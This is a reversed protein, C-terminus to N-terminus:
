SPQVNRVWQRVAGELETRHIGYKELVQLAKCLTEGGRHTQAIGVLIDQTDTSSSGREVAARIALELARAAFLSYPLSRANAVYGRLTTDNIHGLLEGGRSVGLHELIPRGNGDAESAVGWLLHETGIFDQNLALALDRAHAFVRVVNDSLGPASM